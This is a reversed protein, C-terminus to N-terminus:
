GSYNELIINKILSIEQQYSKHDLVFKKYDDNQIDLIQKYSCIYDLKSNKLYENYSSYHWDQPNKVLKASTPNLHLYRTLHMLQNDDEILINKFRGSWLPGIRNHRTNFYKSYSNLVKAMYKTIGNKINQKLVLHFHTPMICYAIIDVYSKSTFQMTNIINNQKQIDLKKFKSLKYDFDIFKLLQFLEFMRKYEKENNFIVFKSISRSYIHYYNDNALIDKRYQVM